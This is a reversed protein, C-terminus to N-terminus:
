LTTAVVETVRGPEVQLTHSSVVEFKYGKLYSFVGKGDGRLIVKAIMVHPGPPVAADFIPRETPGDVGEVGNWAYLIHGDLAYVVSIPIFASSMEHRHRVRLEAEDPAVALTCGRADDFTTGRACT